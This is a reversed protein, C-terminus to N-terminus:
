HGCYTPSMIVVLVITIVELVIWLGRLCVLWSVTNSNELAKHFYWREGESEINDYSVNHYLNNRKGVVRVKVTVTTM